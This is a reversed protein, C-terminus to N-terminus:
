KWAVAFIAIAAILGAIMAAAYNTVVGTQLRRLVAGGRLIVRAVGNVIADVVHIDMRLGAAAAGHMFPLAATESVDSVAEEYRALPKRAFWMFARAGKRYFWDTDLSITNEPDLAKLLLVFGLATFM